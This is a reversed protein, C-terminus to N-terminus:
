NNITVNGNASASGTAFNKISVGGWYATNDGTAVGSVAQGGNGSYVVKNFNHGSFSFVIGGNVADLDSDNLVTLKSM